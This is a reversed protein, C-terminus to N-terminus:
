LSLNKPAASFCLVSEAVSTRTKKKKKQYENGSSFLITFLWTNILVTTTKINSVSSSCSHHKILPKPATLLIQNYTASILLMMLMVTMQCMPFTVPAILLPNNTCYGFGSVCVCVCVCMTTRSRGWFTELIKITMVIYVSMWLKWIILGTVRSIESTKKWVM